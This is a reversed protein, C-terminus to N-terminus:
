SQIEELRRASIFDSITKAEVMLPTMRVAYDDDSDEEFWLKSMERLLYYMQGYEKQQPTKEYAYVPM